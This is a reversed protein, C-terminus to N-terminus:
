SLKTHFHDLHQTVSVGKESLDLIVFNAAVLLQTSAPNNM